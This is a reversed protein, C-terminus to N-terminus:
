NLSNGHQHDHQVNRATTCHNKRPQQLVRFKGMSLVCYADYPGVISHEWWVGSTWLRWLSTEPAEHVLQYRIGGYSSYIQLNFNM